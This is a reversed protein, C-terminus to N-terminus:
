SHWEVNDFAKFWTMQRKAYAYSRRKIADIATERSLSGQLYHIIDRYGIASFAPSMLSYKEMLYRVEDIFGNAIMANVRDNIRQKLTASSLFRGIVHFRDTDQPTATFLQSPPCNYITHLELYRQVRGVNQYPTKAALLPDITNLRHWLSAPDGVPRESVPLRKLPTYGYLLSRIYLASGGCIIFPVQPNDHLINRVNELFTHVSYPITPCQSHILYHPVGDMEAPTLAGTGISFDTYVQFADASIVSGSIKKAM